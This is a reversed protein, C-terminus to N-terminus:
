RLPSYDTPKMLTSIVRAVIPGSEESKARAANWEPDAQFANWATERHALNEWALIYTLRNSVGIVDEWFAVARIGHREFIRLTHNRFRDNLAGMRGPVTEYIRLEYIM